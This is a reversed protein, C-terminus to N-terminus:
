LAASVSVAHPPPPSLPLLPPEPIEAVIVGIAPLHDPLLICNLTDLSPDLIVTDPLVKSSPADNIMPGTLTEFTEPVHKPVTVTVAPGEAASVGIFSRLMLKEPPPPIVTFPLKVAELM